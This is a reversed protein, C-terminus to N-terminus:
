SFNFIKSRSSDRWGRIRGIKGFRKCCNKEFLIISVPCPSKISPGCSITELYICLSPDDLNKECFNNLAIRELTESIPNTKFNERIPENRKKFEHSILLVMPKYGVFTDPYNKLPNCSRKSIKALLSNSYKRKKFEHVIRM